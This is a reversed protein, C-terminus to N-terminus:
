LHVNDAATVPPVAFMILAQTLLLGAVKKRWLGQYVRKGSKRKM